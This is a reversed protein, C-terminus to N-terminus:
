KPARQKSAESSPQREVDSQGPGGASGAAMGGEVGGALDLEKLEEDSLDNRRDAPKEDKRSRSDIANM